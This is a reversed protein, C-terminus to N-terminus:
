YSLGSKRVHVLPKDEPQLLHSEVVEAFLIEHDGPSVSSLVRCELAAMAGNLVLNGLPTMFNELDSFPDESGPNWFPKMVGGNRHGVINVCFRGQAKIADYCARGPKMAISILLPSFSVQQIWSALYGERKGDLVSTVIFLGSPIKGVAAAVAPIAAEKQPNQDM